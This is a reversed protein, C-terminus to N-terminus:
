ESECLDGDMELSEDIAITVPELSFALSRRRRFSGDNISIANLAERTEGSVDLYGSLNLRELNKLASLQQIGAQTLGDSSIKLWKLSQMQALIALGDDGIPRTISLQERNKLKTLHKLHEHPFDPTSLLLIRLKSMEGLAIFTEEDIEAWSARLSELSNMRALDRLRDAGLNPLSFGEVGEVDAFYEIGILDHYWTGGAFAHLTPDDLSYYVKYGDSQISHVIDRTQRARHSIWGIWVSVVTILVLLTRLGFRLIRRQM